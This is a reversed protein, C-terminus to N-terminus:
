IHILSLAENDRGQRLAIDALIWVARVSDEGALGLREAEEAIARASVLNGRRRYAEALDLRISGSRPNRRLEGELRHIELALSDPQAAAGSPAQGAAAPALRQDGSGTASALPQFASSALFLLLGVM